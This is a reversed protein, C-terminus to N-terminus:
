IAARHASSPSGSGTRSSSSPLYVSSSRVPSGLAAITIPCRPAPRFIILANSRSSRREVDRIDGGRETRRRGRGRGEAPISPLDQDEAGVYTAMVCASASLGCLIVTDVQKRELIGVLETKNANSYNKIARPDSEAIAISPLFEFGDTGPLSGDGKDVHYIRVIPLGKKRFLAIASNIM